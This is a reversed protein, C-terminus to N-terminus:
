DEISDLVKKYPRIIAENMQSGIKAKIKANSMLAGVFLMLMMRGKNNQPLDDYVGHTKYFEHDAKMLGRMIYILDRFIKRGGVGYFNQPLYYKNQLAYVLKSVMLQMSSADTAVGAHFNHGVESRADLVIKLNDEKQYDGLVLYGLPMGITMFRHGNCFQRDDYCKFIHGMSHDKITFASIIASATQIENRLFEDFGDKYICKGDFSCNFCGICGGTFPYEAINVIKTEYPYIARFDDIMNLLDKDNETADTLIVSPYEASKETNEFVRSYSVAVPEQTKAQEHINNKACHLVYDWFKLADDQGQKTPLDDMDASLGKICKMKLDHCNDEIYNHATMDYFHKSTSIQTAFKGSLDMNKAKLLSIFRHLQSPALFTYVPYSFLLLDANEISKKAEEFNKEYYKVKQGVNLFDFSCNPYKKELYLVTQLTVSNKGKPSGNLVCIKM